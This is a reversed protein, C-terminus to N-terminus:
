ANIGSIGWSLLEARSSLEPALVDEVSLSQRLGHFHERGTELESGPPDVKATRNVGAAEVSRGRVGRRSVFDCTGIGPALSPRRWAQCSQVDGAEAEHTPRLESRMEKLREERWLSGLRLTGRFKPSAKMAISRNLLTLLYQFLSM